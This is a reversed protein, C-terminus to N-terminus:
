FFSSTTGSRLLYVLFHDGEIVREVNWGEPLERELEGPLWRHSIFVRKGAIHFIVDRSNPDFFFTPYRHYKAYLSNWVFSLLAYFEVNSIILRALDGTFQRYKLLSLVFYDLHPRWTKLLRMREEREFNGFTNVLMLGVKKGPLRGLVEISQRPRFFNEEVLYLPIKCERAHTRRCYELFPRTIDIGVIARINKLKCLWRLERGPGIGLDVITIEEKPLIETVIQREEARRPNAAVKKDYEEAGLWYVASQDEM